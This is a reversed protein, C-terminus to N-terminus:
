QLTNNVKSLNVNLHLWANIAITHYIKRFLVITPVETIRKKEAEYRQFILMSTHLLFMQKWMQCMM